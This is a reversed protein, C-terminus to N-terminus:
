GLVGIIPVTRTSIKEIGQMQYMECVAVKHTKDDTKIKTGYKQSLKNCNDLIEVQFCKKVAEFSIKVVDIYICVHGTPLQLDRYM